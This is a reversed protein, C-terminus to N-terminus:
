SQAPQRTRSATTRRTTSGNRRAPTAKAPAAPAAPAAAAPAAAPAAPAPAAPAAAKAPAASPAPSSQSHQTLDQQKERRVIEALMARDYRREVDSARQQDKAARVRAQKRAQRLKRQEKQSAKISKKLVAVRDRAAALEGELQSTQAANARLQTDLSVVSAAAGDARGRAAQLEARRRDLRASKKAM